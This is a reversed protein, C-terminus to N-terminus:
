SIATNITRYLQDIFGKGQLQNPTKIPLKNGINPAGKKNLYTTSSDETVKKKRIKSVYLIPELTLSDITNINDIQATFYIM